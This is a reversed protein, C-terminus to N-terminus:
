SFLDSHSGTRSVTLTIEDKEIMYILLWNPEIHCEKFGKYNGTLYHAKYKVPLTKEEALLKEVFKLKNIDYGRKKILKYDKKLQNTYRVKLM